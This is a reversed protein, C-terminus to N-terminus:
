QYMEQRAEALQALPFQSHVSLDTLAPTVCPRQKNSLLFSPSLAALSSTCLSDGKWRGKTVMINTYLLHMTPLPQPSYGRRKCLKYPLILVFLYVSHDNTCSVSTTHDM